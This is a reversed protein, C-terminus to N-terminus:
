MALGQRLVLCSFNFISIECRVPLLHPLSSLHFFFKKPVLLRLSNLAQTM